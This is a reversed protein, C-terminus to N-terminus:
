GPKAARTFPLARDAAIALAFTPFVLPRIRRTPADHFVIHSVIQQVRFLLIRARKLRRPNNEGADAFKSGRPKACPPM